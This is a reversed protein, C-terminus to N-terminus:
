SKPPLREKKYKAPFLANDNQNVFSGKIFVTIKTEPGSEVNWAFPFHVKTYITGIQLVM